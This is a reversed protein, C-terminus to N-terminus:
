CNQTGSSSGSSSQQQLLQICTPKGTAVFVTSALTNVFLKSIARVEAPAQLVCPM